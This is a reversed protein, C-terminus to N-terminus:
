RGVAIVRGEAARLLRDQLTRGLGELDYGSAAIVEVGARDLARMAGFLRRAAEEVVGSRGLTARSIAMGDFALLQESPLMVGVRTGAAIWRAVAQKMAGAREAATGGVFLALRARPSYHRTLLGPSAFAEGNPAPPSTVLDPLHSSVDEASIAGPRLLVPREGSLDVVTSEVGYVTRGGDIVRPIRGDLDELVDQACTPSPRSLRNASPAAVPVGAAEILGRAVPHAPFRVAVTPLGATVEEPVRASKELVVTLPGPWFAALAHVADPLRAVLPPLDSMDALHVILPDNWPREKAAFVARVARPDFANAGLGYVTETPFAVLEGRRLAAGAEQLVEEAPHEADVALVRTRM